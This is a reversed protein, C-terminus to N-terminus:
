RMQLILYAYRNKSSLLFNRIEVKLDDFGMSTAYKSKLDPDDSRRGLLGQSRLLERQQKKVRKKERDNKWARELEMDLDSDSLVMGLPLHKGKKKNRLSPRDFDMIDLGYYPDMELADTFATASAFPRGKSRNNRRTNRSSGEELDRILDEIEQAYPDGDAFNDESDTNFAADNQADIHSTLDEPTYAALNDLDLDEDILDTDLNTQLETAEKAEIALSIDGQTGTTKSFNNDGDTDEGSSSSDNFAQLYDDDMNAIYDALIGDDEDRQARQDRRSRRDRRPKGLDIYDMDYIDSHQEAIFTTEDHMSSSATADPLSESKKPQQDDTDANRELLRNTDNANSRHSDDRPSPGTDKRKQRGLFVIEDESSEDQDSQLTGTDPEAIETNAIGEELTDMSPAADATPTTDTPQDAAPTIIPEPMTESQERKESAEPTETDERKLDGASVFHVAKHRLQLGSRWLNRGETNRAEEQMTFKNGAHKKPIFKHGKTRAKAKHSRAM